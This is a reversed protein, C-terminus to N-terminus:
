AVGNANFETPMVAVPEGVAVDSVPQEEDHL